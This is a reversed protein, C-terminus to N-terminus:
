TPAGVGMMREVWLGWKIKRRRWKVKEEMGLAEEREDLGVTERKVEKEIREVREAREATSCEGGDAGAARTTESVKSTPHLQATREAALRHTEATLDDRAKKREGLWHSFKSAGSM